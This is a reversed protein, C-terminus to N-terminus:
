HCRGHACRKHRDVTPLATRKAHQEGHVDRGTVKAPESGGTGWEGLGIEGSKLAVMPPPDRFLQTYLSPVTAVVGGNTVTVWVTTPEPIPQTDPLAGGGAAANQALSLAPLLSFITLAISLTRM